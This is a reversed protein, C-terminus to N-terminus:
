RQGFPGMPTLNTRETRPMECGIGNIRCNHYVSFHSSRFNSFYIIVRWKGMFALSSTFHGTETHEEFDKCNTCTLLNGSNKLVQAWM